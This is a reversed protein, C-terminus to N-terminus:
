LVFYYLVHDRQYEAGNFGDEGPEEIMSLRVWALVQTIYQFVVEPGVIFEWNLGIKQSESFDMTQAFALLPNAALGEYNTRDKWLHTFLEHWRRIFPDGKRAATWHNGMVTQYYWPVCITKPNNPDELQEWGM